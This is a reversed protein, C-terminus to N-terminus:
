RAAAVGRHHRHSAPAHPEPHRDSIVRGDNLTVTFAIPQAPHTNNPYWPRGREVIILLGEEDGVPRFQPGGQRYPALGTAAAADAVNDTVWGIESIGLLEFRERRSSPLTHRAILEAINGDPDAFYVGHADWNTFDFLTQQGTADPLLAVREQLWTAAEDFRNEPINFAFHAVPPPTIAQTLTWVTEGAALTLSSPSSSLEELGMTQTWFQRARGLDATELSLAAFSV